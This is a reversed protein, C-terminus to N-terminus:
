NIVDLRLLVVTQLSISVARCSLPMGKNDKEDPDLMGFKTALERSEDAIIPFPLKQGPQSVWAM